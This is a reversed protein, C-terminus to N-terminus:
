RLPSMKWWWTQVAGCFMAHPLFHRTGEDGIQKEIDEHLFYGRLGPPELSTSSLKFATQADYIQELM